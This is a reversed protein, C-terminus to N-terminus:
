GIVVGEGPLYEVEFVEENRDGYDRDFEYRFVLADWGWEDGIEKLRDFLERLTMQGDM